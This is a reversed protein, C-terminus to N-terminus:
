ASAGVFSFLGWIFIFGSVHFLDCMSGKVEGPRGMGMGMGM